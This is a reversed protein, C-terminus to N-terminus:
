RTAVPPRKVPAMAQRRRQEEGMGPALAVARSGAGSHHQGPLRWRAGCVVDVGAAVVLLLL